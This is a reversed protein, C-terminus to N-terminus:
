HRFVSNLTVHAANYKLTNRAKSPVVQSTSTYRNFCLSCGSCGSALFCTFPMAGCFLLEPEDNTPITSELPHPNQEPRM